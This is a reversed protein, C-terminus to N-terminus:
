SRLSPVTPLGLYRATPPGSTRIRSSKLETQRQRGAALSLVPRPVTTLTLMGSLAVQPRPARAMPVNMTLESSPWYLM